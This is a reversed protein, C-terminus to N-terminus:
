LFVRHKPDEIESPLDDWFDAPLKVGETAKDYILKTAKEILAKAEPTQLVQEFGKGLIRAIAPMVYKAFIQSKVVSLVTDFAIEALGAILDGQTMGARVTSPASVYGTLQRVPECCNLNVTVTKFVAVAVPRGEARVTSAGFASKSKSSVWIAPLLMNYQAHPIFPGIDTSRQLADEFQVRVKPAHKVTKAFQPSAVSAGGRLPAYALHPILPTKSPSPPMVADHPDIGVMEHMPRLLNFASM